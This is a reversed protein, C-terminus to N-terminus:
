GWREERMGLNCEINRDVGGVWGGVQKVGGGEKGVPDCCASRM